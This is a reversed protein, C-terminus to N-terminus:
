LNFGAHCLQSGRQCLSFTEEKSILSKARDIASEQELPEVRDQNEQGM